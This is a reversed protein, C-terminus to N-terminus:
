LGSSFNTNRFLSILIEADFLEGQEVARGVGSETDAIQLVHRAVAAPTWLRPLVMPM